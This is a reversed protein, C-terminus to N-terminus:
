LVFVGLGPSACVGVSAKQQHSDFHLILAANPFFDICVFFPRIYFINEQSNENYVKLFAIETQKEVYAKNIIIFKRTFNTYFKEGAMVKMDLALDWKIGCFADFDM